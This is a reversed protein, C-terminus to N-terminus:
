VQYSKNTFKIAPNKSSRKTLNSPGLTENIDYQFKIMEMVAKNQEILLKGMAAM